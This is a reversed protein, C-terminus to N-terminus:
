TMMQYDKTKLSYEHLSHSENPFIYSLQEENTFEKNDKQIEIKTTNTLFKNLHTLLPFFGCHWVM